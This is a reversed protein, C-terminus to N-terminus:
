DNLVFYFVFIMVSLPPLPPRSKRLLIRWAGHFSQVFALSALTTCSGTRCGSFCYKRFGNANWTLWAWLGLHRSDRHIMGGEQLTCGCCETEGWWAARNGLLSEVRFIAWGWVTTRPAKKKDQFKLQSLYSCAVCVFFGARTIADSPQSPTVGGGGWCGRVVSSPLPPLPTCNTWKKWKISRKVKSEAYNNNYKKRNGMQRTWFFFDKM